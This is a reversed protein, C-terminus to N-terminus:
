IRMYITSMKEDAAFINIATLKCAYYWGLVAILLIPIFFYIRTCSILWLLYIAFKVGFMPSALRVYFLKIIEFSTLIWNSYKNNTWGLLSMELYNIANIIKVVHIVLIRWTKLDGYNKLFRLLFLYSCFDHESCIDKFRFFIKLVAM